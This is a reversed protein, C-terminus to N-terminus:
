VQEFVSDSAAVQEVAAAATPKTCRVHGAEAGTEIPTQSVKINAVDEM